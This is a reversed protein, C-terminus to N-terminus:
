ICQQSATRYGDLLLHRILSQLQLCSSGNCRTAHPQHMYLITSLSLSGDLRQGKRFLVGWPCNRPGGVYVWWTQRLDTLPGRLLYPVFLCVSLCVFAARNITHHWYKTFQLTQISISTTSQKSLATPRTRFLQSYFTQDVHSEYWHRLDIPVRKM